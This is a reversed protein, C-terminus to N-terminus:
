KTAQLSNSNIIQEVEEFGTPFSYNCRVPLAFVFNSNQDLMKPGIPAAGIHIEEKELSSWQNQTFIM